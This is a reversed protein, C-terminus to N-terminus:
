HNNYKRDRKKRRKDKEIDHISLMYNYNNELQEDMNYQKM